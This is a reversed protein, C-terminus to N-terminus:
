EEESYLSKRKEPINPLKFQIPGVTQGSFDIILLMYIRQTVDCFLLYRTFKVEYICAEDQAVLRFSAPEIGLPTKAIKKM